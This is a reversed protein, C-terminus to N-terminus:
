LCSVASSDCYIMSHYSGVCVTNIISHTSVCVMTKYGTIDRFSLNAPNVELKDEHLDEHFKVPAFLSQQLSPIKCTVHRQKVGVVSCLFHM